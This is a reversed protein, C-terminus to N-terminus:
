NGLLIDVGEVPLDPLVALNGTGTYVETELNFRHHPSVLRGPVGRLLVHRGTSLRPAIGERILSHMVGTYSIVNVAM